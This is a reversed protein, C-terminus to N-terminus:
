EPPAQGPVMVMWGVGFRDTVQGYCPSFFTKTLPMDATGGDALADYLRRADVETPVTLTLRFGTPAEGENCGDSAMITLDGVTFDCHMIRNEFGPPVMGEPAPEPSESFRLVMGIRAGIATRYFELAEECTGGFFLYPQVTANRGAVTNMLQEEGRTIEGDPDVDAFDEMEFIPRIDIDSDDDMPNPCRKVWEIAQEMSDVEWIWYGAILEKTEAFPGDTVSRDKGSFHVRVAESSPKLGEGAKMIGAEVLQNNFEMMEKLLQESPLQGTESQETAKVMVMVRM